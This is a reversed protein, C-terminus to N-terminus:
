NAKPKRSPIAKPFINFVLRHVRKETMLGNPKTRGHLWKRDHLLYGQGKKFKLSFQHKEEMRRFQFYWPNNRSNLLDYFEDYYDINHRSSVISVIRSKVQKPMKSVNPLIEELLTNMNLFMSVGSRDTPVREYINFLLRPIYLDCHLPFYGKNSTTLPAYLAEMENKHTDAIITRFIAFIKHFDEGTIEKNILNTFFSIKDSLNIRYLISAFKKFIEKKDAALITKLDVHYSYNYENFGDIFILKSQISKFHENRRIDDFFLRFEDSWTHWFIPGYKTAHPKIKAPTFLKM